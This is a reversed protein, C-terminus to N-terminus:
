WYPYIYSCLGIAGAQARPTERTLKHFEDLGDRVCVYLRSVPNYFTLILMLGITKTEKIRLGNQHVLQTTIIGRPLRSRSAPRESPNPHVLAESSKTFVLPGAESPRVYLSM